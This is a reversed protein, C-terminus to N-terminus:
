LQENRRGTITEILKAKKMLKIYSIPENNERDTHCYIKGPKMEYATSIRFEEGDVSVLDGKQYATLNNKENNLEYCKDILYNIDEMKMSWSNDKIQYGQRYEVVDITDNHLGQYDYDYDPHQRDRIAGCGSRIDVFFRM